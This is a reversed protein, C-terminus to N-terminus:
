LSSKNAGKKKRGRKKQGTTYVNEVGKAQNAETQMISEKVDYIEVKPDLLDKGITDISPSYDGEIHQNKHIMQGSVDEEDTRIFDMKGGTGPEEHNMESTTVHTVKNM